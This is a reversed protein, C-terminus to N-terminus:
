VSALTFAAKKLFGMQSMIWPEGRRVSRRTIKKHDSDTTDYLMRWMHKHNRLRRWEERRDLEEDLNSLLSEGGNAM